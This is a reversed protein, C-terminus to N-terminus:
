VPKGLWHSYFKRIHVWTLSMGPTMFITYTYDNDGYIADNFRIPIEGMKPNKSCERLMAKTFNVYKEMLKGQIPPGIQRDACNDVNLNM